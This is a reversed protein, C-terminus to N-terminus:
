NTFFFCTYLRMNYGHFEFKEIVNIAVFKPLIKILKYIKDNLVVRLFYISFKVVLWTYRLWTCNTNLTLWIYLSKIFKLKELVIYAYFERYNHTPVRLLVGDSATNTTRACLSEYDRFTHHTITFDFKKKVKVRYKWM